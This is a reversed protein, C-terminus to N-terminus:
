ALDFGLDLCLTQNPPKMVQPLHGRKIPPSPNVLHDVNSVSNLHWRRHVRRPYIIIYIVGHRKHIALTKKVKFGFSLGQWKPLSGWIERLWALQGRKDDIGALTAQGLTGM